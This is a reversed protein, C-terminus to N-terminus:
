CSVFRNWVTQLWPDFMERPNGIGELWYSITDAPWASYTPAKSLTILRRKQGFSEVTEVKVVKVAAQTYTVLNTLTEGEKCGFDCLLRPQSMEGPGYCMWVKGDADEYCGGYCYPEKSPRKEYLRKCTHGSIVTDGEFYMQYIYKEGTQPVVYEYNWVKGEVVFPLFGDHAHLAMTLFSVFIIAIITKM